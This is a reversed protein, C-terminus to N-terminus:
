RHEYNSSNSIAQIKRVDNVLDDMLLGPRWTAFRGLSYVKHNDSAWMIFRRRADESIPLIKFYKQFRTKVDLAMEDTNSLPIGILRLSIRAIARVMGEEGECFPNERNGEIIVEDGNISIRSAFFDPDPVYLSGFINSNSIKVTLTVGSRSRFEPRPGPYALLEMLLPMPLTSIIPEQEASIPHEQSFFDKDVKRGFEFSCLCGAKLQAIFDHPAIYREVAEDEASVISRLTYDGNTKMSYAMVDAIPNMWPAVAKIAKVKQFPINVADGVVSSKFRLVASHNNPTAPQAEILKSCKNRLMAAALLGAMGGGLVQM